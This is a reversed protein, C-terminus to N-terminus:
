RVDKAISRQSMFVRKFAKSFTLRSYFFIESLSSFPTKLESKGTKQIWMDATSFTVATIDRLQQLTLADFNIGVNGGANCVTGPVNAEKAGRVISVRVEEGETLAHVEPLALGVGASSFDTTHCAITKGSSLILTAPIRSSVRPTNRIQKAEMAVNVGAALIISNIGVWFLNLLLTSYADSGLYLKVLAVVIGTLNLVLLILIPLAFKWDFFEKEVVGGKTTVNFSGSKPNILALMVPILLFWALCSEYVDSWFSHRHHGSAVSNTINSLFVAPIVYVLVMLASANYIEAGFFLYALPATLLVIRPLGYFFHLMANLYCLRQPITLGRGFLPNDTRFIQAMGRAWRIRQGIHRSFSETALGAALPIGIFATNYGKRSMKLSTHADETVTEVAIGGVEMLPARRIVACSGCFFSANWLDNGKQVVGYFLEGENPVSGYTDLNKEFPDPSYFWHPTQVLALKPDKLFSGMTVQLFARTPIHDCDFFAIFEGNTKGLALNLNGAKHHENNDRSMYHIQAEACFERFEDRKGDDLLYINLKKKPWDISQAALMTIKVVSLPENYTPIFLDVTPWSELDDSLAIIDRKLPWITQIYGILVVVIIYSEALFLGTGFFTDLPTNFALTESYRWVIYRILATTSIAFLAILGYSKWRANNLMLAFVISLAAFILQQNFTLDISVVFYLFGLCLILAATRMVLNQWMKANVIVDCGQLFLQKIHNINL